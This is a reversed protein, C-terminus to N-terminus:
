QIVSPRNPLKTQTRCSGADLNAHRCQQQHGYKPQHRWRRRGVFAGVVGVAATRLDDDFATVGRWIGKGILAIFGELDVRRGNEGDPADSRM